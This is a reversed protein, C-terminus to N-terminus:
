RVTVKVVAYGADTVDVQGSEPITLYGWRQLSEIRGQDDTTAVRNGYVIVPWGEPKSDEDYGRSGRVELERNVAAWLLLLDTVSLDDDRTM